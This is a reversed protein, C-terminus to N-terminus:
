YDYIIICTNLGKEKAKEADCTRQFKNLLKAYYLGSYINEKLM